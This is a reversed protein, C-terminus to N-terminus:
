RYGPPSGSVVIRCRASGCACRLPLQLLATDAHGRDILDGLNLERDRGCDTCIAAVNCGAALATRVTPFGSDTM